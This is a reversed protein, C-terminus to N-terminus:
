MMLVENKVANKRVRCGMMASKAGIPKSMMNRVLLYRNNYLNLLGLKWEADTLLISAKTSLIDNIPNATPCSKKM